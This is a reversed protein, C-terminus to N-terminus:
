GKGTENRNEIIEKVSSRIVKDWVIGNFKDLVNSRVSNNWVRNWINNEIRNGVSNGVVNMANIIKNRKM